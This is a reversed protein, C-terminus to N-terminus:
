LYFSLIIKFAMVELDKCEAFVFGSSDPLVAYVTLEYNVRAVVVHQKPRINEILNTRRALHFIYFSQRTSHSLSFPILFSLSFSLVFSLFLSLFFSLLFPLFFSAWSVKLGAYRYLYCRKFLLYKTTICSNV